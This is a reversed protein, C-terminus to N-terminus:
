REPIVCSLGLHFSLTKEIDLASSLINNKLAKPDTMCLLRKRCYIPHNVLSYSCFFCLFFGGGSWEDVSICSSRCHFPLGHICMNDREDWRERNDWSRTQFGFFDDRNGQYHNKKKKYGKMSRCSTCFLCISKSWHLTTVFNENITGFPMILGWLKTNGSCIGGIKCGCINYKVVAM